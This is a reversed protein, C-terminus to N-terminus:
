PYGRKLAFVNIGFKVSGNGVIGADLLTALFTFLCPRWNYLGQEGGGGGERPTTVRALRVNADGAELVELALILM